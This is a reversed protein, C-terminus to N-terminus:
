WRIAKRAGDMMNLRLGAAGVPHGKPIEGGTLAVRKTALIKFEDGIFAQAVGVLEVVRVQRALNAHRHRQPVDRKARFDVDHLFSQRIGQWDLGTVQAPLLRQSIQGSEDFRLDSLLSSPRRNSCCYPVGTSRYPIRAVEDGTSVSPNFTDIYPFPLWSHFQVVSVRIKLGPSFGSLESIIYLKDNM